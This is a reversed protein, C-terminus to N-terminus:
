SAILKMDKYFYKYMIAQLVQPTTDGVAYQLEDLLRVEAWKGDVFARVGRESICLEFDKCRRRPALLEWKYGQFSFVGSSNTHRSFRASLVYDPDKLTKHWVPIPCSAEKGFEQNFIKVYDLLFANAADLSKIKYRSFYWPLRGQITRWVREIRGKAQPSWALIQEVHLEDMMRQWQTRKEHVAKLQEEITLNDKNKPSVCFIAARDSYIANPHGGEYDFFTRRVLETYGYLCENECMYLATLKGTADDISGHLAYKTKDGAWAFWEYPTADIQLLEGESAKRLRPRHVKSKRVRRNEPSSIGAETLVNYITKPSYNIDFFEKLCAAFFRFNYGEFSDKYIAVIHRRENLPIRTVPTKGTNGHIFVSDGRILWQKYTNRVHVESYQCIKSALRVSLEGSKIRPMVRKLASLDKM